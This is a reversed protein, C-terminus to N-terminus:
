LIEKIKQLIIEFEENTYSDFLPVSIVTKYLNNNKNINTWHIPLFIKNDKLKNRFKDRFPIALIFFSYYIPKKNICYIDFLEFLKQFRQKQIIQSSSELLLRISNSSIKNINQQKDLINEAQEFKSLYDMEDGINNYKYNYKLHKAQIKIKAFPSTINNILNKDIDLLTTKVMSGDPLSSIKRFSNFAFWNKANHHNEFNYLFVNDELLIIQNLNIDDLTIIQGFYNIIYLVDFKSNQIKKIDITLDEFVKYFDYAINEEIFIDEIIDCLFDPLLYNKDKNNDSRLFLRLSSRGSDTFHTYYNQKKLEIEGGIPNM